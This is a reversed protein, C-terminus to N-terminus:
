PGVSKRLGIDSFPISQFKPIAKLLHANNLLMFNKKKWDKFGPNNQSILNNSSKVMNETGGKISFFGNNKLPVTPNWILNREFICTNPQIRNEKLLKPLGPYRKGHPMVSFDYDDMISKWKSQYTPIAKKNWTALFFSQIFTSACDIFINNRIKLYAGGNTFIAGMPKSGLNGNRFFINEEILWDMTGNDAYVANSKPQQSAVGDFFNRRIVTGRHHPHGGMNGYIVGMDKFDKPGNKFINYKIIHDNGRIEIASHPFDNFKCNKVTHGVGRLSVGPCYVRQWHGWNYIHTNKVISKSPTLSEWIGGNLSISTGGIDHIKCSDIIHQEGKLSIASKGQRVIECSKITIDNGYGQFANRRSSDFIINKFSIHNAGSLEVMNDKLTSVTILANKFNHTPLVYLIGKERDIYYEGPTDIEEILNQAYFFDNGWNLLGSVEGHTLTISKKKFNITKIKNFSWQWDKSFVGNLWIDNSADWKDIRENKYTFVGGKINFDSDNRSPGKDLVSDVRMHGKNPYRALTMLKGDIFLELPPPPTPLSFGRRLLQGYESIGHIKLDCMRLNTRAQIDIIRNLIKEDTVAQFWQHKLIKNGVLRAIEGPASRYTIHANPLGSDKSTLRLTTNRQHNGERLFVTVGSSPIKKLARIEKQAKEITLFPKAKTGKNKDSGNTAVYYETGYLPNVQLCNIFYILLLSLSPKM